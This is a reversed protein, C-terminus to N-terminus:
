YQLPSLKALKGSQVPMALGEHNGPSDSTMVLSFYRLYNIMNCVIIVYYKAAQWRNLETAQASSKIYGPKLGLRAYSVRKHVRKKLKNTASVTFPRTVILKKLQLLLQLM